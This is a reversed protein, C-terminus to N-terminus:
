ADLSARAARSPDMPLGPDPATLGGQGLGANRYYWEDGDAVDREYRDNTTCPGQEWVQGVHEQMNGM